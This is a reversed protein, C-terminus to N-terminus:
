KFMIPESLRHDGCMLTVELSTIDVIVMRIVFTHAAVLLLFKLKNM